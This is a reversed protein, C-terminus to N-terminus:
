FQRVARVHMGLYKASHTGSGNYLNMCYASVGPQNSWDNPNAVYYETSSWYDVGTNQTTPFVTAQQQFMLTLEANSPLYWDAYGGFTYAHATKAASGAESCAALIATTNAQGAYLGEGRAGPVIVLTSNNGSSDCGWKPTYTGLESNADFRAAEIGHGNGLSYIVVGGAPGTVGVAYTM